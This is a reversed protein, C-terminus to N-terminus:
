LGEAGNLTEKTIEECETSITPFGPLRDRGRAAEMSLNGSDPLLQAWLGMTDPWKLWRVTELCGEYLFPSLRRGERSGLAM